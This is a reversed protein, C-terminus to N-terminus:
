DVLLASAQLKGSLTAADLVSEVMNCASAAWELANAQTDLARAKEPEARRRADRYLGRATEAEPVPAPFRALASLVGPHKGEGMERFLAARREDPLGRVWDRLESDIAPDATAPPAYFAETEKAVKAAVDSAAQRAKKLEIQVSLHHGAVDGGVALATDLTVLKNVAANVSRALPDAPSVGDPTAAYGVIRDLSKLYHSKIDRM